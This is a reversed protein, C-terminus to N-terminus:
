LSALYDAMSHLLEFTKQTAEYGTLEGKQHSKASTIAQFGSGAYKREEETVFADFANSISAEETIATYPILFNNLAELIWSRNHLFIEDWVERSSNQLRYFEKYQPREISPVPLSFSILQPIHSVKAFIRDHEMCSTISTDVAMGCAKWFDIVEQPPNKKIILCKKGKLIEASSNKFGTKESGAIPHCPVFNSYRLQFFNNQNQVSSIDVIITSETSFNRAEEFMKHYIEYHRGRPSCVCIIDFSLKPIQTFDTYFKIGDFKLSTRATAHVDWGALTLAKAISGGMLGSSVILAKM